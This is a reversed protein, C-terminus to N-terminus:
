IRPVCIKTRKQGIKHGLWHTDQGKSTNALHQPHLTSVTKLCALGGVGAVKHNPHWTQARDRQKSLSQHELFFTSTEVKCLEDTICVTGM